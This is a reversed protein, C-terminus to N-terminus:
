LKSSWRCESFFYYYRYPIMTQIKSYNMTIICRYLLSSIFACGLYHDETVTSAPTTAWTKMMLLWAVANGLWFRMSVKPYGHIIVRHIYQNSCPRSNTRSQWCADDGIWCIASIRFGAYRLGWRQRACHLYTYTHRLNFLHKTFDFQYLGRLTCLLKYGLLRAARVGDFAGLSIIM